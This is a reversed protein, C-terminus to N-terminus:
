YAHILAKLILWTMLFHNTWNKINIQKINGM